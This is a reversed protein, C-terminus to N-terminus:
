KEETIRVKAWADMGWLAGTWRDLLYVRGVENGSQQQYIDWRLMWAAILFVAVALYFWRNNM